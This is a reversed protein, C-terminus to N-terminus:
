KYLSHAALIRSSRPEEVLTATAEVVCYNWANWGNDSTRMCALAVLQDLSSLGAMHRNTFLMIDTTFPCPFLLSSHGIDVWCCWGFYYKHNLISLSKNRLSGGLKCRKKFDYHWLYEVRSHAEDGPSSRQIGHTVFKKSRERVRVFLVIECFDKFSFSYAYSYPYKRILTLKKPILVTPQVTYYLM